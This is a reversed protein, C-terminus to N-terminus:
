RENNIRKFTIERVCCHFTSIDKNMVLGYHWDYYMWNGLTKNIKDLSFNTLSASEPVAENIYVQISSGDFFFDEVISLGRKAPYEFVHRIFFFSFMTASKEDWTFEVMTGIQNYEPPAFLHSEQVLVGDGMEGCNDFVSYNVFDPHHPVVPKKEFGITLIQNTLGASLNEVSM